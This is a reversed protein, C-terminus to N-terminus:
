GNLPEANTKGEGVSVDFREIYKSTHVLCYSIGDSFEEAGVRFVIPTKRPLIKEFQSGFVVETKNGCCCCSGDLLCCVCVCVGKKHVVKTNIRNASLLLLMLLM